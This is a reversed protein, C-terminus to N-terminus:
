VELDRRSYSIYTIIVSATVIVLSLIIYIINLNGNALIDKADFYKFPTLYKLYDLDKNFNILYTLIFAVLLMASAISASLKPKNSVAATATGVFFFILQMFFLGIILLYLDNIFDFNHSYMNIFLISSLLTVINFVILGILGAAIKATIVKNRTIPKAFIFESTRDREEKSMIGAGLMVAHITAMLAIYMYMVGYFGSAKTLDFGTLGFITQISQPFQSILDTVSQGATQFTAYKVMSSWILLAMGLSWFLLSKKYYKVERWFVNM